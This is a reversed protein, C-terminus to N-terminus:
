KGKMQKYIREVSIHWAKDEAYRKGLFAFYSGTGDWAAYREKCIAICRARSESESFGIFKGNIFKHVGYPFRISNEHRKIANALIEFDFPAASPALAASTNALAGPVRAPTTNSMLMAGHRAVEGVSRGVSESRGNFKPASEPNSGSNKVNHAHRSQGLKELGGNFERYKLGLLIFALITILGFKM